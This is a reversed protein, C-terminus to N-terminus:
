YNNKAIQRLEMLLTQERSLSCIMGGAQAMRFHCKYAKQKDSVHKLTLNDASIKNTHVQIGPPWLEPVFSHAYHQPM